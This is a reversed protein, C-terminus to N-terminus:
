GEAPIEEITWPVVASLERSGGIEATVDLVALCQRFKQLMNAQRPKRSPQLRDPEFTEEMHLACRIKVVRLCLAAFNREEEGGTKRACVLGALTDRFKQT